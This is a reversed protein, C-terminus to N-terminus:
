ERPYTREVLGVICAPNALAHSAWSLKLDLERLAAHEGTDFVERVLGGLPGRWVLAAGDRQTQCRRHDIAM